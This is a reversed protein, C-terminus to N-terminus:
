AALRIAVRKAAASRALYDLADQTNAEKVPDYWPM